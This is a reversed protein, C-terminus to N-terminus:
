NLLDHIRTEGAVTARRLQDTKGQYTSQHYLTQTTNQTLQKKKRKTKGTRRRIECDKMKQASLPVPLLLIAIVFLFMEVM